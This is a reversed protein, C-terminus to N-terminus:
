APTVAPQTAWQLHLLLPPWPRFSALLRRLPPWWTPRCAPHPRWIPRQPRFTGSLPCRCCLQPCGTVFIVTEFLTLFKFIFDSFLEGSWLAFLRSPYGFKLLISKEGCLRERVLIYNSYNYLGTTTVHWIYRYHYHIVIIHLLIVNDSIVRGLWVM